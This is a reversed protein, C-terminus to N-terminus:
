YHLMLRPIVVHCSNLLDMEDTSDSETLEIGVETLEGGGGCGYGISEAHDIM